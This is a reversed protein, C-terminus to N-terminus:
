LPELTIKVNGNGDDKIVVTVSALYVTITSNGQKDMTLAFMRKHKGKYTNLYLM